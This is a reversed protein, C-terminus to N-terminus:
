FSKVTVMEEISIQLILKAKFFDVKILKLSFTSWLVVYYKNCFFSYEDSKQIYFWTEIEGKLGPQVFMTCIIDYMICTALPFENM